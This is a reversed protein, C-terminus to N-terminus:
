LVCVVPRNEKPVRDFLDKVGDPMAEAAVM